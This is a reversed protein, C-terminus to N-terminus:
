DFTKEAFGTVFQVSLPLIPQCFPFGPQLSACRFVFWRRHLGQRKHRFLFLLPIKIPDPSCLGVDGGTINILRVKGMPKRDVNRNLMTGRRFAQAKLM